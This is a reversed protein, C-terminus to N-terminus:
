TLHVPRVEGALFRCSRCADPVLRLEHMPCALDSRPSLNVVRDETGQIGVMDGVGFRAYVSLLDAEHVVPIQPAPTSPDMHRAGEWTPAYTSPLGAGLTAASVRAAIRDRYAV